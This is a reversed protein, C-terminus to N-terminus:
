HSLICALLFMATWPGWRAAENKHATLATTSAFQRALTSEATSRHATVFADSGQFAASVPLDSWLSLTEPTDSIDGKWCYNEFCARCEDLQDDGRREQERRIIACGVCKGWDSDDSFNGRTSVAFGNAIIGSMEGRDFDVQLSSVNSAYTYERNPIYVVVPIDTAEVIYDHYEALPELEAANCGFFVPQDGFGDEILRDVLPVYPFPSGRGQVGFQRLFTYVLSSANAWNQPTDASNDFAFVVDVNRAPQIYPYIPINQLDEGGDVLHLTHGHRISELSGYDLNYFPNPEFSAIDAEKESFAGLVWTLIKRVAWNINQSQEVRMLIQNFMSSLTGLIFGANDFNTICESITAGNDFTTGLYRLDVFARLSPDWSGFEFPTIEFVTSNLNVIKTGPDREDALVVPFPMLHDKFSALKALSSWTIGEGANYSKAPDFFQHSLARGFVDTISTAFGADSKSNVAQRILNYYSVTAFVNIGSPNFISQDLNWLHLDASIVDEVPPWDNLALTGVLWAGGSLGLIYTASQLLGGLGHSKLVDTRADLALLQGAGSLMARYGGGSFALAVSVNSSSFFADADFDTLKCVDSFFVKLAESTRKQREEIYEQERNSIETAERIIPWSPCETPRPKYAAGGKPTNTFGPFTSPGDKQPLSSTAHVTAWFVAGAAILAIRM